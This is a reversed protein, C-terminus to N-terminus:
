WADLLFFSKQYEIRHNFLNELETQFHFQIVVM